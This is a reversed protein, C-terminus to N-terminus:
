KEGLVKYILIANRLSLIESGCNECEVTEPISALTEFVEEVGSHRNCSGCYIEYYGKIYGAEELGGLFKYVDIININYRRKLVGPYIWSRSKYLKLFNTIDQAKKEDLIFESVIKEIPVSINSLM